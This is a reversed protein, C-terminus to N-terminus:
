GAKKSRSKPEKNPAQASLYGKVWGTLEARGKEDLSELRELIPELWSPVARRAALAQGPREGTILWRLDVGMEALAAMAGCELRDTDGAELRQYTRKNVGINAAFATQSLGHGLRVERLRKSLQCVVFNAM